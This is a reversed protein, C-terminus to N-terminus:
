VGASKGGCTSMGTLPQTSGWPCLPAPLILDIFFELYVIPFPVRSRIAAGGRGGITADHLNMIGVDPLSGGRRDESYRFISSTYRAFPPLVNSQPTQAQRDIYM